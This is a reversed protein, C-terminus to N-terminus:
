ASGIAGEDTESGKLIEMLQGCVEEIKAYLIGSYPFLLLQRNKDISEIKELYIGKGYAQSVIEAVPLSKQIELLLHVGSETGLVSIWDGADRTLLEDLLTNKKRYIKRIRRLHREYHGEEMFKALTLQDIKSASPTMRKKNSNFVKLLPIPLIM